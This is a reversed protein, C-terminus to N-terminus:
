SAQRDDARHGGFVTDVIAPAPGLSPENLLLAQPRSMLARGISLMQGEGGSLSAAQASL